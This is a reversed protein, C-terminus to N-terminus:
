AAHLSHCVTKSVTKVWVCEYYEVMTLLTSMVRRLISFYPQTITSVDITLPPKFGVFLVPPVVMGYGRQLIGPRRNSSFGMDM